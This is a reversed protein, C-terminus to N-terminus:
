PSRSTTPSPHAPPSSTSTCSPHPTSPPPCSAPSASAPSPTPSSSRTATSGTLYGKQSVVLNRDSLDGVILGRHHLRAVVASLNRAIGLPFRWTAQTFYRIRERHSFLTGLPHFEPEGVLRM